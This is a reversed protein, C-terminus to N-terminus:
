IISITGMSKGFKIASWASATPLANATVTWTIGDFSYGVNRNGNAIAVFRGAGWAVASWPISSTLGTGSNWSTGLTTSYASAANSGTLPTGSYSYSSIITGSLSVVTITLDNAPTAGGLSTGAIKLQDGVAYNTGGAALFLNYSTGGVGVTFKAGTGPSTYTYTFTLGNLNGATSAVASGGLSASIAFIGPTPTPTSIVYYTKPNSYGTISGTATGSLTGSVTIPTGVPLASSLSAGLTIVGSGDVTVIGSITQSVSVPTVSLQNYAAGPAVAVFTGGGFALSSWNKASPLLSSLWSQGLSNSTLVISNGSGGYSIIVFYGQGYEIASFPATITLPITTFLAGSRSTYIASGLSALGVWIGSGYAIAVTYSPWAITTNSFPPTTYTTRPEIYYVSTSDFVSTNPTGVNINDWGVEGLLMNGTGATVSVYTSGGSATVLTFTTQSGPTITKIYYTVGTSVGGFTPTSFTGILSGFGSTFVTKTGTSQGSLSGTGALQTAVGSFTKVICTGSGGTLLSAGGTPTGSITFTTSNNVVSIYYTQEATIGGFTLGVFVVPQGPVFGATSTVTILNTTVQTATASTTILQSTQSITFHTADILTNIYYKLGPSLQGITTGTFYIPYFSKLVTTSDSVTLVNTYPTGNLTISASTATVTCSTLSSSLTFTTSDIVDNIYYNTGVVLNGITAGQFQIIFNPLMNVTPGNLYGTGSPYNLSMTGTATTLQWVEGGFSTSVQIHTADIINVVYYTFNTTIQGFTIGTFTIPQNVYLPLTSTVTITNNIGGTTNTATVSNISIYTVTTTFPNPLFQVPQNVYL